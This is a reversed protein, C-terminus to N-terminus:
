PDLRYFRFFDNDIPLVTTASYGADAALGEVTDARLVTGLAASPQHERSAPLCHLVSWGFMMREIEDGPAVFADAVREDAILVAGDGALAKRAAALAEVPRSMDHLAEFICVLDFPGHEALAGADATLWHVREGADGALRAADDVSAPDLDLGWVEADPFARALAVTSYGQGCGIDAVRGGGSRLRDAVEGVADMWSPLDHLFAPRNISGQGERFDAGYAAYPVGTGSRYADVVKPLAGAIGVLMSAFPAVHSLDDPRTLVCAVGDSLSYCRESEPAEPDDVDVLAAVAQQELWEVAYRHDIGAREALASSTLSGERDLLDYLGLRRGLHISFLELTGITAEFLRDVLADRRQADDTPSITVAM